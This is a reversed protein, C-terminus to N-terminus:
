KWPLNYQSNIYEVSFTHWYIVPFHTLYSASRCLFCHWCFGAPMKWRSIMWLNTLRRPMSGRPFWVKYRRAANVGHNQSGSSPRETECIGQSVVTIRNRMVTGEQDIYCLVCGVFSLTLSVTNLPYLFSISAVVFSMLLLIFNNYWRRDSVYLLM